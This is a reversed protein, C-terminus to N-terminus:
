FCLDPRVGAISATSWSLQAAAPSGSGRGVRMAVGHSVVVHSAQMCVRSADFHDCYADLEGRVLASIACVKRRTLALSVSGLTSNTGLVRQRQSAPAVAIWIQNHEASGVSIWRIRTLKPRFRGLNASVGGLATFIAGVEASIARLKDSNPGFTQCHSKRMSARAPVEVPALHAAGREFNGALIQSRHSYKCLSQTGNRWVRGVPLCCRSRM